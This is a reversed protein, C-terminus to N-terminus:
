LNRWIEAEFGSVESRLLNSQSIFRIEFQAM